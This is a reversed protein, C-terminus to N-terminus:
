RCTSSIETIGKKQFLRGRLADKYFTWACLSIFLKDFEKDRPLRGARLRLTLVVAGTPTCNAAPPLNNSISAMAIALSYHAM